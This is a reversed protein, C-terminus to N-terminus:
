ASSQFGVQATFKERTNKVTNTREPEKRSGSSWSDQGTRIRALVGSAHSTMAATAFLRPKTPARRRGSRRGGKDEEGCM